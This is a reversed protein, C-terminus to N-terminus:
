EPSWHDPMQHALREITWSSISAHPLLSAITIAIGQICSEATSGQKWPQVAKKWLCKRDCDGGEGGRFGNRWLWCCGKGQSWEVNGLSWSGAVAGELPGEDRDLIHIAAAFVTQNENWKLQYLDAIETEAKFTEGRVWVSARSHPDSGQKLEGM